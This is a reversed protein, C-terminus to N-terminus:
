ARRYPHQSRRRAAGAPRRGAAGSLRHCLRRDFARRRSDAARFDKLAEMPSNVAIVIRELTGGTLHDIFWNRVPPAIFVPWLRKLADVPMRTGALGARFRVDPSSFDVNGSMAVGVATNGLDGEDIAFRRRAADYSGTVAIRNLILPDSARAANALVVTGGGIKFSWTSAGEDPAEVQGILTM